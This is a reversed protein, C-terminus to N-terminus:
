RIPFGGVPFRSLQPAAYAPAQLLPRAALGAGILAGGAALGTGLALTKAVGGVAGGVKGAAQGLTKLAGPGRATTVAKATPRAAKQATQTVVNAKGVAPKVNAIYKRAM